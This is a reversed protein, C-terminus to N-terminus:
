ANESGQQATFVQGGFPKAPKVDEAQVDIVQRAQMVDGIIKAIMRAAEPDVINTQAIMVPASGKEAEGPLRTLPLYLGEAARPTKAEMFLTYAKRHIAEQADSYGALLEEDTATGPDVGAERAFARVKARMAIDIGKQRMALANEPTFRAFDPGKVLHGATVDYEVGSEYIAIQHGDREVIERVKPTPKDSLSAEM